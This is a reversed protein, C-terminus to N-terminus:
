RKRLLRIRNENGYPIKKIIEKAELSRLKRSLKVKSIGLENILEKTWCENDKKNLLYTVIRKEDEYLNRTLEEKKQEKTKIKKSKEKVTEIERRLKKRQFVSYAILALILIFFFQYYAWNSQKVFEYNILIQEDNYDKWSLIISRGDSTILDPDPFLIGGEALIAAEPLILDIDSKENLYNKSIFYYNGGSKDILSKTIYKLSLNEASAIKIMKYEKMDEKHQLLPQLWHLAQM